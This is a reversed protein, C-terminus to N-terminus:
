RGAAGGGRGTDTKGKTLVPVPTDDDQLRKAALVHDALNTFISRDGPHYRPLGCEPRRCTTASAM